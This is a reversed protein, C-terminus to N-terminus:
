KKGKDQTTQTSNPPQTFDHTEVEEDGVEENDETPTEFDVPLVSSSPTWALNGTAATDKFMIDLLDVNDLDKERFKAAEPVEQLKVRKILIQFYWLKNILVVYM